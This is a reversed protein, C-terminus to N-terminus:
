VGKLDFDPIEKETASALDQFYCNDFDSEIIYNLVKNYERKTIKRNIVPHEKACGMPVYQSMLSFYAYPANQRVWEFIEIAENTATPMLLHRIIVGSQMIGNEFRAEGKFDHAICIARKAIEPYDEAFSLAKARESSIYKFDLLFIDVFSALKRIADESEYGSSNYVIPIDPRYIRLANTIATVYHTPTVLNINHAGMKELEYFLEALRKETIAKGYRQASIEANQCYVCCLSCGSFFITGSGNKGSICPEEGFHLAARAIKLVLPM